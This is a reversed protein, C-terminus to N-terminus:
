QLSRALKLEKTFEAEEGPSGATAIGIGAKVGSGALAAVPMVPVVLVVDVQLLLALVVM